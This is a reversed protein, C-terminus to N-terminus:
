FKLFPNLYFFPYFYRSGWIYLYLLRLINLITSFTFVLIKKKTSLAFNFLFLLCPYIFDSPFSFLLSSFLDGRFLYTFSIFSIFSLPSLSYLFVKLLFRLILRSLFSLCLFILLLIFYYLM